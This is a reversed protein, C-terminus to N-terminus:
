GNIINHFRAITQELHGDRNELVHDYYQHYLRATRANGLREAIQKEDNYGRDQLRKEITALPAQILITTAEPFVAKVHRVNGLNLLGLANRGDMLVRAVDEWALGYSMGFEFDRYDIFCGQEAMAHFTSDKVFTYEKESAEGQRRERTCYRPVLALSEGQEELVTQTISTKGTCSAGDVLFCRGRQALNNIEQRWRRAEAKMALIEAYPWSLTDAPSIGLRQQLDELRERAQEMSSDPKVEVEIEVYEGLGEVQDLNILSPGKAFTTRHKDVQITRGLARSLLADMEDNITTVDLLLYDSDRGFPKSLREYHILQSVGDEHTRLKLRGRKVPFFTDRQRGDRVKTWGM